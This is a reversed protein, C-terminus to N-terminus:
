RKEIMWRHGCEDCTLDVQYRVGTSQDQPTVLFRDVTRHSTSYCVPCTDQNLALIEGDLKMIELVKNTNSSGDWRFRTLPLGKSSGPMKVLTQSTPLFYAQGGEITVLRVRRKLPGITATEVKVNLDQNRIWLPLRFGSQLMLIVGDSELSEHRFTGPFVFEGTKVFHNFSKGANRIFEQDEQTFTRTRAEIRKRAEPTIIYAGDNAL